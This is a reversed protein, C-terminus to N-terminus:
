FAPLETIYRDVEEMGEFSRINFKKKDEVYAPNYFGVVQPKAYKAGRNVIKNTLINTIWSLNETFGLYGNIM